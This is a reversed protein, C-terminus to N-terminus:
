GASNSFTDSRGTTAILQSMDFFAKFTTGSSTLGNYDGLFLGGANPATLYDFSGSTTLRTEGGVAWSAPNTCDSTASHRHAIFADTLGRSRRPQTRCTTTCSASRGM